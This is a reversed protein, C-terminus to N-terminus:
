IHIDVISTLIRKNNLRWACHKFLNGVDVFSFRSQMSALVVMVTWVAGTIM